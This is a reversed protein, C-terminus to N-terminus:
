PSAKKKYALLDPVGSLRNAMLAAEFEWETGTVPERGDIGRYQPAPLPTGLRAWLILALIDTEGPPLIADQFHGSALMPETEWLYPKIEFFRPYDKALKEIFLGAGRRGPAVDAPSSIFIRLLKAM